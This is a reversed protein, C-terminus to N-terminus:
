KMGGAISTAEPVGRLRAMSWVGFVPGVALTAFALKWGGAEVLPPMLHITVMTLLFGACTQVTLMTGVLDPPSLEAISASFQASDAVVAIGWVLCLAFVLLPHAGFLFGAIAACAGSITMAGITLSTRGIRDALMGGAVCGFIGGLGMAAFTAVRAWYSAGGDHMAARFSADLFVGLWAWMAYLEWMHGLYGGNALRLPRSTFATLAYHARFRRAPTVGPGLAVGNILLASTLAAISAGGITFRWDVGGYANLLHPSASGLTLAGVLAGVLFGMDGKAWTTAIKMGVPYIGAMCAGTIFRLVIISPSVPDIALITANALTALLTSVLFFRRPDLRDALGFVASVLTGAVFGAQVASTFLSTRLPSLGYERVLSPIVASASFWLSMAGLVCLSLMVLAARKNELAPHIRPGTNMWGSSAPVSDPENM